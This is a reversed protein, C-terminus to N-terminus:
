NPQLTMCNVKKLYCGIFNSPGGILSKSELQNDIAKVIIEKYFAFSGLIDTAGSQKPIVHRLFPFLAVPKKTFAQGLFKVHHGFDKLQPDDYDMGSGTLIRWLSNFTYLYLRGVVDVENECEAKLSTLLAEIDTHIMEEMSSKGFGLSKLTRVAFKRQERWEHGQSHLNYRVLM